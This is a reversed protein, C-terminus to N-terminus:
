SSQILAPLFTRGRSLLGRQGGRQCPFIPIRPSSVEFLKELLRDYDPEPNGNQTSSM